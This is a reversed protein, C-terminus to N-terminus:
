TRHVEDSNCSIGAIRLLRSNRSLWGHWNLVTSTRQNQRQASSTLGSDCTMSNLQIKHVKPVLKNRKIEHMIEGHVDAILKIGNPLKHSLVYNEM